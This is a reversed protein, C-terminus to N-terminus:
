FFRDEEVVGDVRAYVTPDVSRVVARAKSCLSATAPRTRLGGFDNQVRFDGAESKKLVAHSFEGGFFDGVM